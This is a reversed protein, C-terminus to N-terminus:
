ARKAFGFKRALARLGQRAYMLSGYTLPEDDLCLRNVSNLIQNGLFILSQYANNFQEEIARTESILKNRDEPSLADLDISRPKASPEMSATKPFNHPAAIGLKRHLAAVRSWEKGADFEVTTIKAFYALRGLETALIPNQAAKKAEAKIRPWTALDDPPEGNYGNGRDKHNIQGSPYRKVNQKRNRGM